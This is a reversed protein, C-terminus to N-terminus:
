RIGLQGHSVRRALEPTCLVPDRGIAGAPLSSASVSMVLEVATPNRILVPGAHPRHPAQPRRNGGLGCGGLRGHPARAIAAPFAILTTHAETGAVVTVPPAGFLRNAAVNGTAAALGFLKPVLSPDRQARAPRVPREGIGTLYAMAREAADALVDEV